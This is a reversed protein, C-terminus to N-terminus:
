HGVNSTRIRQKKAFSAVKPLILGAAAVKGVGTVNRATTNLWVHSLNM